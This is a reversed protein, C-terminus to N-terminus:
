SATTPLAMGGGSTTTMPTEPEPLDVTPAARAWRSRTGNASASSKWGGALMALIVAPSAARRRRGAGRARTSRPTAPRARRSPRRSSSSPASACTGRGAADAVSGVDLEQVQVAGALHDRPALGTPGPWKMGATGARSATRWGRAARVRRARGPRDVDVLADVGDDLGVDVLVGLLRMVPASMDRTGRASAAGSTSGTARPHCSTIAARSAMPRITTSIVQALTCGNRASIRPPRVTPMTAPSFMLSTM